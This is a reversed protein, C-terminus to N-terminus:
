FRFTNTRVVHGYLDEEAKAIYLFYSSIDQRSCGHYSHLSNFPGVVVRHTYPPDTGLSFSGWTTNIMARLLRHHVEFLLHDADILVSELDFLYEAVGRAVPVIAAAEFASTDM